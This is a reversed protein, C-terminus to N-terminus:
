KGITQLWLWALYTTSGCMAYKAQWQILVIPLYFINYIIQDKTNFRYKTKLKFGTENLWKEDMNLSLM